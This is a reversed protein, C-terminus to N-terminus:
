HPRTCYNYLITYEGLEIITTINPKSVFLPTTVHQLPQVHVKIESAGGTVVIWVCNLGVTFVSLSHDYRDSVSHPLDIQLNYLCYNYYHEIHNGKDM